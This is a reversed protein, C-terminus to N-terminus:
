PPRYACSVSLLFSGHSSFDIRQVVNEGFRDSVFCAAAEDILATRIFVAVCEHTEPVFRHSRIPQHILQELSEGGEGSPSVDVVQTAIATTYFGGMEFDQGMLLINDLGRVVNQEPM